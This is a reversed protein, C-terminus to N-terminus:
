GGLGLEVCRVGLIQSAERRTMKEEFGGKYFRRAMAQASFLGGGTSTSAPKAEAKVDSAMEGDDKKNDGDIEGAAVNARQYAGVAYRAAIAAAAIGVGAAALTASQAPASGHFGATLPGGSFGDFRGPGAHAIPAPAILLQRAALGGHARSFGRALPM